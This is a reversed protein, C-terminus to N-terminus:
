RVFSSIPSTSRTISPWKSGNMLAKRKLRREYFVPGYTTARGRVLDPWLLATIQTGRGSRRHSYGALAPFVRCSEGAEGM